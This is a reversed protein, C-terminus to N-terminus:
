PRYSPVGMIRCGDRVAACHQAPIAFELNPLLRHIEYFLTVPDCGRKGLVLEVPEGRLQAACSHGDSGVNGLAVSTLVEALVQMRKRDRIPRQHFELSM